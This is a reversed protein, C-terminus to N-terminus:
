PYVIKEATNRSPFGGETQSEGDDFVGIQFHSEIYGLEM